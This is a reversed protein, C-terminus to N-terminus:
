PSFPNKEKEPSQSFEQFQKEEVEQQKLVKQYMKYNFQMTTGAVNPQQIEALVVYAYFLSVGLILDFLILFLVILFAHSGIIWPIKRIANRQNFLAKFMLGIAKSVGESGM